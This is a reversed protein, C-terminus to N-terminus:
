HKLEPPVQGGNKSLKTLVESSLWVNMKASENIDGTYGLEKALQQRSQLSSDLGLLKMLDVISTQWNLKQSNKAALKALLREVNVQSISPATPNQTPQAQATAAASTSPHFIKNVISEFINM